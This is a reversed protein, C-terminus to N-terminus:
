LTIRLPHNPSVTFIFIARSQKQQLDVQWRARRAEDVNAQRQVLDLLKEFKKWM